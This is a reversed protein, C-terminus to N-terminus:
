SDTCLDTEQTVSGTMTFEGSKLAKVMDASSQIPVNFVTTSRGLEMASHADSGGILGVGYQDHWVATRRNEGARNRGNIGEVINCLGDRILYERTTRGRRFPHAAVAAGGREDVLRLLRSAELGPALGEFPGFLLFDGESTTYEMGIILCLGDAQRGETVTQKLAMTDHDTVCVGDLGRGSATKLLESLDLQSCPSLTTHVHMDFKM